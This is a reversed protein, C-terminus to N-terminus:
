GSGNPLQSAEASTLKRHTIPQHHAIAVLTTGLHFGLAHLMSWSLSWNKLPYHCSPCGLSKMTGIKTSSEQSSMVSHHNHHKEQWGGISQQWTWCHLRHNGYIQQRGKGLMGFDLIIVWTQKHSVFMACPWAEFDCICKKKWIENGGKISLLMM